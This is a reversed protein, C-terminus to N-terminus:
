RYRYNAIIRWGLHWVRFLPECLSEEPYNRILRMMRKLKWIGHHIMGGEKLEKGREDYQGFNGALMMERLLQEGRKKDPVCLLWEDPMAFVYQLVWMVAAAFKSIGFSDFTCMIEDASMVSVGLGDVWMDLSQKSKNEKCDDHWSKLVYYYDVFQRLGVGEDFLHTFLHIMQYVVNVSVTPVSFGLPTRNNLCEDARYKFWRQMRRNSAFSKLHGIRYHVELEVGNLVPMDIHHYIAKQPTTRKRVYKIVDGVTAERGKDAMVWMDIDGSQRRYALYEPYNLLNGQGKLVCCKFGDRVFMATAKECAMNMQKNRNEIQMALTMWQMMLSKPCKVGHDHLKEVATFGIGLLAQHKCFTYLDAWDKESLESKLSLEKDTIALQLFEFLQNTIM